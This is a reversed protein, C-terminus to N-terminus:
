SRIVAQDESTFICKQITIIMIMFIILYQVGMDIVYLWFKIRKQRTDNEDCKGQDKLSFKKEYLDRKLQAIM